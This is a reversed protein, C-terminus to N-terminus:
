PYSTRILKRVINEYSKGDNSNVQNEQAPDYYYRGIEILLAQKFLHPVCNPDTTGCNFNIFVVDRGSQTQLTEPWGDDDNLCVLANRGLDLEYQAPDLTQSNGDSDVYTVSTITTAKSMNLVVSQGKSPFCDQSQSWGATIICREIDRELQETVAKILNTILDDQSSGAVRLHNKAAELSVALGQPSTTRRLTWNPSSM